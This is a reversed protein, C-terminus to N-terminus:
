HAKSFKVGRGIEIENFNSPLLVLTSNEFNRFNKPIVHNKGAPQGKLVQM